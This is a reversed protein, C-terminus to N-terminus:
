IQLLFLAVSSSWESGNQRRQTRKRASTSKPTDHNRLPTEDLGPAKVVSKNTSRDVYLITPRTVSWGGMDLRLVVCPHGNERSAVNTLTTAGKADLGVQAGRSAGERGQLRFSVVVLVNRKEYAGKVFRHEYIETIGSVHGHQTARALM